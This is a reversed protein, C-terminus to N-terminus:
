LIMSGDVRGFIWDFQALDHETGCYKCKGTATLNVVKDCRQCRMGEGIPKVGSKVAEDRCMQCNLKREVVHAIRNSDLIILRYNLSMPIYLKGAHKVIAQGVGSDIMQATLVTNGSTNFNQMIETFIHPDIFQKIKNPNYNMAGFFLSILYARRAAFKVVSFLPDIQRMERFSVISAPLKVGFYYTVFGFMFLYGIIFFPVFLSVAGSAFGLIPLAVTGIITAMIAQYEKKEKGTFNYDVFTVTNISWGYSDFSHRAQCYECVLLGGEPVVRQGCGLCAMEEDSERVDSRVIAMIIEANDTEKTYLVQNTVNDIFRETYKCPFTVGCWASKGDQFINPADVYGTMTYEIDRRVGARALGEIEVETLHYLEDSVISNLRKVNMTKIASVYVDLKSFFENLDVKYATETIAPDLSMDVDGGAISSVMNLRGFAYFVCLLSLGIGVIGLLIGM